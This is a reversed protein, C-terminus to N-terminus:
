CGLQRDLFAPVNWGEMRVGSMGGRQALAVLRPLGHMCRRRSVVGAVGRVFRPLAPRAVVGLLGVLRATFHIAWLSLETTGSPVPVRAVSTRSYCSIQVVGGTEPPVCCM